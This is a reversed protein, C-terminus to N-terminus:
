PTTGGERPRRSRWAALVALGAVGALWAWPRAFFSRPRSAAEQVNAGDAKAIAAAESAPWARAGQVLTRPALERLARRVFVPFSPRLPFDSQGPAFAVVIWAGRPRRRKWVAPEGGATALLEDSAGLEFRPLRGINVDALSLGRPGGLLRDDNSTAPSPRAAEDILLMRREGQGSFVVGDRPPAFLLAPGEDQTPQVGEAIVVDFPAERVITVDDLSALAADVFTDSAGLRRVRWKPPADLTLSLPPDAEPSAQPDRRDSLFAEVHRLGGRPLPASFEGLSPESADPVDLTEVLVNEDLVRAGVPAHEDTRRARVVLTKAAGVTKQATERSLVVEVTVTERGWDYTLSSLVAPASPARDIPRATFGQRPVLAWRPGAFDSFVVIEHNAPAGAQERVLGEALALARGPVGAEDASSPEIRDLADDVSAEEDTAARLLTPWAGFALVGVRAHASPGSLLEHAQRRAEDRAHRWLPAGDLGPAQMHPSVDILFFVARAPGRGARPDASALLITMLAFTHLIWSSWRPRGRRRSRPPVKKAAALSKWLALHAVQVRTRVPPALAVWFALAGVLTSLAVVSLPLGLAHM